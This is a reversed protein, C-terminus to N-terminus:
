WLWCVFFWLLLIWVFSLCFWYVIRLWVFCNLVDLVFYVLVFGCCGLVFVGVFLWIGFVCVFWWDVFWDLWGFLCLLCVEFGVLWFVLLGYGVLLCCGVWWGDCWVIVVFFWCGVGGLWCCVVFIWCWYYFGLWGFSNWVLLWIYFVLLWGCIWWFCRDSLGFWRYFLLLWFVVCIVSDLLVYWVWFLVFSEFGLGVRVEIWLLLGVVLWSIM